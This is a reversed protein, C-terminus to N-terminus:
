LLRRRRGNGRVAPAAALHPPIEDLRVLDATREGRRLVYTNKGRVLVVPPRPYIFQLSNSITYAGAHRFVLISGRSVPPLLVDRSLVDTQMCLAGVIDARETETGAPVAATVEHRSQSASPLLNVGGDVVVLKRGDPTRKVAVVTTLLSVPADVIARGPELILLPRRRLKKAQAKLPGCIAEAYAAYSPAADDAAYGGGLDLYEIEGLRRSDVTRTLELLGEIAARYIEVDALRTGAHLHFGSLRLRKSAHIRRSVELAQGSELNFGFKDWPADTLRMNVRVGIKVPRRLRRAVEELDSLEELNDVNVRAGQRAAALLYELPKHPGNYVIQPGPVGLALAHEMEFGSVVEAWAGEQHLIACVGTVYNTKYSYAVVTEPYRSRFALLFHRINTRLAAESVIYLPSGYKACLTGVSVGDIARGVEVSHEGQARM